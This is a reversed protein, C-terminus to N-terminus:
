FPKANHVIVNYMTIILKCVEQNHRFDVVEVRYRNYEEGKEHRKICNALLIKTNDHNVTEDPDSIFCRMGYDNKLMYIGVGIGKLKRTRDIINQKANPNTAKEYKSEPFYVAVHKGQEMLICIEQYYDDVWSLDGGFLIVKNNTNRLIEKGKKIMQKRRVTSNTKWTTYLLLIICGSAMFLLSVRVWDPINKLFQCGFGVVAILNLMFAVLREM